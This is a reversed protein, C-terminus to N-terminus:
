FIINISGNSGNFRINHSEKDIRLEASKNSVRSM